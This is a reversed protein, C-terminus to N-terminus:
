KITPPENTIEIKKIKWYFTIGKKTKSVENYHFMANLARAVVSTTQNLTRAIEVTSISSRHKELIKQIEAQGM